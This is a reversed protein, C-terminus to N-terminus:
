NIETVYGIQKRPDGTAGPANALRTALKEQTEVLRRQAELRGQIRKEAAGDMRELEERESLRLVSLARANGMRETNMKNEWELVKRQRTDETEIEVAAIARTRKLTSDTVARQEALRRKLAENALTEELQARAQVASLDEGHLKRRRSDELEAKQSQIQQEISAIERKRALAIAFEQSEDALREARAKRAREQVAIDEPLGIAGEPQSGSNAYFVDTARNAHLVELIQETFDSKQLVNKVYMTASYTFDDDVYHNYPKNIHKWMGSKLLARTTTVPDAADFCLHLISKGRSKISLDSGSNILLAMVKQMKRELEPNMECNDSGHLCVEGLAGRGNHLPSPFDPDHGSEILVRVAPLNLERASNHLSGDDKSPEAALLCSMMQIAIDGGIHTAMALPTRGFSDVVDVEAGELLLLKVIDPRRNQVALM